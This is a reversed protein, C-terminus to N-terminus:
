SAPSPPLSPSRHVHGLPQLEPFPSFFRVESSSTHQPSPPPGLSPTPLTAPLTCIQFSLLPALPRAPSPATPLTSLPSGIPQLVPLPLLQDPGLAKRVASAPSCLRAPAPRRSGSASPRGGHRRRGRGLFVAVLIFVRGRQLVARGVEGVLYVGGLQHVHRLPVQGVELGDLPDHAM